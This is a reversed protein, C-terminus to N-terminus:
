IKESELRERLCFHLTQVNDSPCFKISKSLRRSMPLQVPNISFYDNGLKKKEGSMFDLVHCLAILWDSLEEEHRYTIDNPGFLWYLFYYIWSGFHSNILEFIWWRLNVMKHVYILPFILRNKSYRWQTFSYNSKCFTFIRYQFRTRSESSCRYMVVRFRYNYLQWQAVTNGDIM